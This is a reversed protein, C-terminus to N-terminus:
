SSSVPVAQVVQDLALQVVLAEVVAAAAAVQTLLEQVALLMQLIQAAMVLAVKKLLLLREAVLAALALLQIGYVVAEAVLTIFPQVLFILLQLLVEMLAALREMQGRDLHDAEAVVQGRVEPTELYLIAEQIEKLRLPQHPTVLAEPSIIEEQRVEELVVPQVLWDRTQLPLAVVAAVVVRLLSQQFCRILVLHVLTPHILM